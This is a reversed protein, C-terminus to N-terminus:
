YDGWGWVNPHKRKLKKFNVDNPADRYDPWIDFLITDFESLNINDLYKWVNQNVFSIKEPFMETLPQGFVRIIEPELEIQVVHTVEPKELVRRTLWGMGLGAILVRGKALPIAERQTFIEMPTLSMWIKSKKGTASTADSVTESIMPIHVPGSFYVTNRKDEEAIELANRVQKPGGMGFFGTFVTKHTPLTRVYFQFRGVDNVCRKEDTALDEPTFCKPECAYCTEQVWKNYSDADLALTVCECDCTCCNCECDCEPTEEGEEPPDTWVECDENHNHRCYDCERTEGPYDREDATLGLPSDCQCGDTCYDCTKPFPILESWEQFPYKPPNRRM